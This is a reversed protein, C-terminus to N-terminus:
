KAHFKGLFTITIDLFKNNYTSGDHICNDTPAIYYEFPKQKIKLVPYNSFHEFFYDTINEVNLQSIDIKESLMQQIQKLPLNIVYLFRDENGINICIRNQSLHASEIDFSTSHDIHLGLYEFDDENLNISTVYRGSPIVSLRHFEFAGMDQNLESVFNEIKENFVELLKPNNRLKEFVDQRNKLNHIGFDQVIKIIEPSLVGIFLFNFDFHNDDFLQKEEDMSLNRWDNKPIFANKKFPFDLNDFKMQSHLITGSNIQLNNTNFKNPFTLGKIIKM